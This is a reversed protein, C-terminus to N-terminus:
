RESPSGGLARALEDPDLRGDGDGDLSAIVTAPRVPLAMPFELQQLDEVTIGGDRDLDLRTFPRVPGPIRPPMPVQGLGAPREIPTGFLGELTTGEVGFLHVPSTRLTDLLTTLFGIEGLELRGSGNSDLQSLALTPDVDPVEYDAFVAELEALSLAGNLDKDYANRLQEAGRAPAAVGTDEPVPPQFGGVREIATRYRAGFEEPSIRGDTDADYRGFEARDLLLAQEGERFSIWGNGDYDATAFYEREQVSAVVAPEDSETPEDDVAAPEQTRAAAPGEQGAARPALAYPGAAALAVGLAGAVLPAVPQRSYRGM